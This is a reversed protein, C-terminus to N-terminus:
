NRKLFARIENHDGLTILVLDGERVVFLIRLQLGARCEFFRGIPRIGISAHEHPRGFSKELRAIAAAVRAQQHPALKNYAREFSPRQFIM